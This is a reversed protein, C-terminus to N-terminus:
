YFAYFFFFVVFLTNSIGRIILLEQPVVSKENKRSKSGLCSISMEKEEGKGSEDKAARRRM